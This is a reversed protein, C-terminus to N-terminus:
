EAYRKRLELLYDHEPEKDLAERLVSLAEARQGRAWMLESLHGAIESDPLLEFAKRLYHEAREFNGMRFHVWGMSDIVAPDHPRKAYARKIYGFAEQIRRNRDALTFGLANLATANDPDANLITRLDAELRGLRELKEAMLARAYLLDTNGPYNGLASNLLKMGAKYRGVEQLLQGEALYLQVINGPDTERSRVRLLYARGKALEDREVFLAAVRARADVYYQGENVQSYWKMAEDFRQREQAIRGLYYRAEDVRQGTEILRMFYGRASAYRQNQLGLLGLTYLLGPDKPRQRLMRDFQARAKGYRETQMLMRAYTIGLQYDEPADNVAERMSAVAQQTEGLALLARARLVQAEILDPELALAKTAEDVAQAYRGADLALNAYAYHALPEGANRAVLMHMAKLAADFNREQSLSAGILMFGHHGASPAHEILYQFHSMAAGPENNRVYLVGLTQRAEADKPALEVWRRAAKLAQGHDQAYLAIRAAREAVKPDDALKAAKLYHTVSRKLHGFQGALEGAMLQYM